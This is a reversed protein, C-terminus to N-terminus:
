DGQSLAVAIAQELPTSRGEAWTVAFAAADFQARVAAVSRDYEARDAQPMRCRYCRTIGGGGRVAVGRAPQGQVGVVGALEELCEAIGQQDGLERQM